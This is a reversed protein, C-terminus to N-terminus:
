DVVEYRTGSSTRGGRPPSGGVSGAPQTQLEGRRQRLSRVTKLWEELRVKATSAPLGIQPAEQLLRQMENENIQAGSQAYVQRNAMQTLLQRLKIGKPDMGSVFKEGVAGARGTVPGFFPEYTKWNKEVEDALRILNEFDALGKREAAPVPKGAARAAEGAGVLTGGQFGAPADQLGALERGTRGQFATERAVPGRLGALGQAAIENARQTVAGIPANAGLEQRAQQLARQMTGSEGGKAGEVFRTVTKRQQPDYYQIVSGVDGVPKATGAGGGMMQANADAETATPKEMEALLGQKAKLGAMPEVQGRSVLDDLQRLLEYRRNQALIERLVEARPQTPAGGYSKGSTPDVEPGSWPASAVGEPNPMGPQEVRYAGTGAETAQPLPQGAMIRSIVARMAEPVMQTQPPVGILEDEQSAPPPPFGQQGVLAGLFPNIDPYAM